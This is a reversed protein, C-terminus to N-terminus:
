FLLEIYFARSYSWSYSGNVSLYLPAAHLFRALWMRVLVTLCDFSCSNKGALYLFPYWYFWFKIRFAGSYFICSPTTILPMTQPDSPWRCYRPFCFIHFRGFTFFINGVFCLFSMMLIVIYLRILHTKGDTLIVTQFSYKIMKTVRACADPALVVPTLNCVFFLTSESRIWGYPLSFTVREILLLSLMCQASHNSSLRPLLLRWPPLASKSCRWEIMLFSPAALNSTWLVKLKFTESTRTNQWMKSPAVSDRPSCDNWYITRVNVITM